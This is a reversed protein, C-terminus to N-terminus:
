TEDRHDIGVGSEYERPIQEFLEVKVKWEVAEHTRPEAM